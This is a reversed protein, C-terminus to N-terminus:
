SGSMTSSGAGSVASSVTGSLTSRAGSHVVVIM